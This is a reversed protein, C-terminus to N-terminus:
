CFSKLFTASVSPRTESGKSHPWSQINDSVKTPMFFRSQALTQSENGLDSLPRRGLAEEVRGETDEDMPSGKKLFRAWRQGVPTPEQLPKMPGVAKSNPRVRMLPFCSRLTKRANMRNARFAPRIFGRFPSVGTMAVFFSPTPL